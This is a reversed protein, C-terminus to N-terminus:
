PYAALCQVRDSLSVLVSDYSLEPQRKIRLLVNQGCMALSIQFQQAVVFLNQKM